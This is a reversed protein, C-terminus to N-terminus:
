MVSRSYRRDCCYLRASLSLVRWFRWSPKLVFRYPQCRQTKSWSSRGGCRRMRSNPQPGAGIQRSAGEGADIQMKLLKDANPHREAATVVAVRLDLRAFENIDIVQPGTEEM